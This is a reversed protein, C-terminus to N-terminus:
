EAVADETPDEFVKIGIPRTDNKSGTETDQGLGSSLSSSRQVSRRKFLKNM